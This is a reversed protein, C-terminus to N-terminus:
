RHAVEKLAYSLSGPRYGLYLVQEALMTDYVKRPIINNHYLFQLDFKANHFILMKSEMLEKYQYINVTTCDIVVQHGVVDSGLQFTMLKKLYPNLGNTESDAQLCKIDKFLNFVGEEGLFEYRPDSPKNPDNSIYYIM